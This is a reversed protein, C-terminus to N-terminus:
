CRLLNFVIMRANFLVSFETPVLISVFIKKKEQAAVSITYVSNNRISWAIYLSKHINKANSGCNIERHLHLYLCFLKMDTAISFNLKHCWNTKLSFITTNRSISDQECTIKMCIYKKRTKKLRYLIPYVICVELAARQYQTSNSNELTHYMGNTIKQFISKSIFWRSSSIDKLDPNEQIVKNVIHM